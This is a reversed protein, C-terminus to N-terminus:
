GEVEEAEVDIVSSRNGNGLFRGQQVQEMEKQAKQKRIAELLKKRTDLDLDLDEINIGTTDIGGSHELQLKETYGRDANMTRNVFMVAAPNRFEVLDMLAHEFFNKKHWQIEEILQLFELDNRRWFELTNKSIGVIRCATSLDFNSSVLAHIFLEQRIRKPKGDLIADIKAFTPDKKHLKIQNWTERAEPSLRNLVYGSFDVKHGRKEEAMKRALRIHPSDKYWNFMSQETVKM